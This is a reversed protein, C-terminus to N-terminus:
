SLGSAGGRGPLAALIDHRLRGLLSGRLRTDHEWVYRRAGASLTSGEHHGLMRMADILGRMAQSGQRNYLARLLWGAAVLATEGLRRHHRHQVLVANRVQHYVRGDSWDMRKEPSRKHLVVISPDYLIWYGGDILRYSLDLEEECFYLAGDYGGADTFAKRSLAHGVGVFRAVPVPETASMHVRPYAWSELDLERTAYDLARFAVAGLRRDSALRDVARTLADSGDFVADNDLCVVYDANGSDIGINRGQPVGVNRSLEILHVEPRETALQRLAMVQDSDSGQDVIWLALSDTEQGLVSDVAALTDELRNWSLLVVDVTPLTATM